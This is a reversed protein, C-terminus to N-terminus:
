ARFARKGNVLGKGMGQIGRQARIMFNRCFVFEIKDWCVAGKGGYAARREKKGLQEISILASFISRDHMAM